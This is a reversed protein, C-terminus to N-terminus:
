RSPYAPAYGGTLPGSVSEIGQPSGGAVEDMAREIYHQSQSTDNSSLSGLARAVDSAGQGAAPADEAGPSVPRFVLQVQVEQLLRRADDIRGNMLAVRAMELRKRALSPARAADTSPRNEGQQLANEPPSATYPRQRLRSLVSQMDDPEVRATATEIKPKPLTLAPIKLAERRDPGSAAPLPSAPRDPPAAPPPQQLAAIQQRAQDTAAQSASLQQQLAALQQRGQDAASQSAVLQDRLQTVQQELQAVQQQLQAVQQAPSEAPPEAPRTAFLANWQQRAHGLYLAPQGFIVCALVLGIVVAVASTALRL